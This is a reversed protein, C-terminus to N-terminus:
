GEGGVDAPVPNCERCNWRPRGTRACSVCLKSKRRAVAEPSEIKDGTTVAPAFVAQRFLDSVSVGRDTALREADAKEDDSLRLLISNKRAM